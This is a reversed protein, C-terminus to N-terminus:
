FRYKMSFFIYRPLLKINSSYTTYESISSISFNNENTLNNLTMRYSFDSKKPEYSLTGGLFYYDSNEMQYYDNNLVAHWEKAFEYTFDLGANEWHTKSRIGNFVSQSRNLHIHFGFNIPLDFYTTGTLQYRASHIRLSNFKQTNAKVPITSWNQSSSINTSFDLKEFYSTFNITGSLRDGANVFRYTSLIFDENIRSASSYRGDSDVYKVRLSVAQTEMENDWKYYFSFLDRKSLHITHAGRVFSRYSGLQYNNLFLVSNPIRHSSEYSLNFYGIKLKRLTLGIKPHLTWKTKDTTEVQIDLYELNLGASMKVHESFSYSLNTNLGLKQQKLALKNQLSDVESQKAPESLIFKNRRNEKLSEYAIEVTHDFDGFNSFLSSTAGFVALEDNSFHNIITEKPAEFLTNLVPSRIIAEQETENKGFYLYNHLVKNRGLFYSYNLHNYFSYEEKKLNQRISKQNFLLSNDIKDPKNRYVLVNKLYSREGGTYKLELEGAAITKNHQTSSKEMFRIPDEDINFITESSFQQNQVDNTFFGTGRLKLKPGLNTVFGLSNLFAKNFTSQGEKFVSTGKEVISYIPHIEPEIKQERYGTSINISSPSGEVQASAKNGLNNYNGFYFFKIEKRILGINAAANIREETGLGAEVNGFWINKFKDKLKINLAVKKSDLVKALVPNDEFHDIIQVADLVKADLNKSLMQYNDDFMDSGEILLKEIFKGHAKISGDPLVKIGPLNKLVDELTQETGDSFAEVQLTIVNGNASIKEDPKLVVTKLQEVKKSLQFSIPYENKGSLLHISETQKGFGLSTATVLITPLGESELKLLFFGKKDTYAYALINKSPGYAVISVNGVFEGADNQVHGSIEIQAQSFLSIFFFFFSFAQKLPYPDNM